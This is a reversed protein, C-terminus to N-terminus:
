LLNETSQVNVIINALRDTVWEVAMEDSAFRCVLMWSVMPETEAFIAVPSPQQTTIFTRAPGSTSKALNAIQFFHLGGDPLKVMFAKRVLDGDYADFFDYGSVTFLNSGAATTAALRIDATWSPVYFEGCRGRSRQFLGLVADVEAASRVLHEAQFVETGFPIAVYSARVGMQNDTWQTPDQVDIQVATAWNPRHTLVEIGNFVVAPAGPTEIETGPTVDLDVPVTAVEDTIASLRMSQAMRGRLAPMVRTGAEWARSSATFTVVGGNVSDVTRVQRARTQRDEFIVERATAIWAPASSGFSATLGGLPTAAVIEVRQREDPFVIDEGQQALTRRMARFRDRYVLSSYSMTRRAAQRWARRQERGADSTIIETLYTYTERYPSAWNPFFPWVIM